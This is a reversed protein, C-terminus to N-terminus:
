LKLRLILDRIQEPTDVIHHAGASELEERSGYGYTIGISPVGHSKAANIDHHRDGIMIAQCPRIGEQAFLWALLDSKNSRTGDLEPGYVGEFYKLLDFHALIRRAYEHAKGTAVFQRYGSARLQELV